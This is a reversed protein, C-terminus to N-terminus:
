ENEKDLYAFFEEEPVPKSFYYGQIYDCGCSIALDLQEKTEVGEQVTDSGLSRIFIMLSELLEADRGDKALDWLISKDIKINQYHSGVMRMLNSYGTGFDDLSLTYGLDKFRKLTEAVDYDDLSTAATETIELNIASSPVNYRKRIEEFSEVLDNNIFQYVSLNLEVYKIGRGKMRESKLFRCVEEFVFLGIDKILGTKEAIPIYVEPSLSRLEDSDVRILAEASVTRREKVSWIPQYYLMLKNEEIAKRLATEIDSLRTLAIIDQVPVFYSGSKPSQYSVSVLAELEKIDTIDEPVRALTAIAEAKCVLSGVKWERGFRDLVTKIFPMAEGKKSENFIVAFEERRYCYVDIVGSATNLYSAVKMLFMDAERGSFRKVVKDLEKLKIFAIEYKQKAGFLKRNADAFAFRNLLGTTQDIHGSKEELVMMIVLFALSEAFLEVLYSSKVAQLLIGITALVIFIGVAWSDAKSIAKKNKIFFFFGMAVYFVGIVYLVIMMPGRHYILNEDMYFAWSTFNNTLVMGQSILYPIYFLVHMSKKWNLSAGTVNIIYLPFSVALTTHFVFYFAHFLYQWFAVNPFEATTLFVGVISSIASLMNSVIMVLFMFHQSSLKNLFGKPPVYQRHKATVSYLFCLLSLLCAPIEFNVDYM